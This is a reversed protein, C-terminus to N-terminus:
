KEDKGEEPEPCITHSRLSRFGNGLADEDICVFKQHREGKMIKQNCILCRYEKRARPQTESLRTILPLDLSSM